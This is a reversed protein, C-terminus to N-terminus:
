EYQRIPYDFTLMLGDEGYDVESIYDFDFKIGTAMVVDHFNDVLYKVLTLIRNLTIETPYSNTYPGDKGITINPSVIDGINDVTIVFLGKSDVWGYWDCELHMTDIINSVHKHQDHDYCSAVIQVLYDPEICADTLLEGTIELGLIGDTDVSLLFREEMNAM